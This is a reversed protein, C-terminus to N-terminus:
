KYNEHHSIWALFCLFRSNVFCLMDHSSFLLLQNAAWWVWVCVHSLKAWDEAFCRAHLYVCKGSATNQIPQAATISGTASVSFELMRKKKRNGSSSLPACQHMSACPSCYENKNHTQILFSSKAACMDLSVVYIFINETYINLIM